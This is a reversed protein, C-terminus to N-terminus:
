QQRAAPISCEVGNDSVQFSCNRTSSSRVISRIDNKNSGSKILEPRITPL